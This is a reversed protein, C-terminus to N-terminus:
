QARLAGGAAALPAGTSRLTVVNGVATAAHQPLFRNYYGVLWQAARASDTGAPFVTTGALDSHQGPVNRTYPEVQLTSAAGLVPIPLHLAVGAAGGTSTRAAVTNRLSAALKFQVGATAAATGTFICGSTTATIGAFTLRQSSLARGTGVMVGVDGSRTAAVLGVRAVLKTPSASVVTAMAGQDAVFVCNNAPNPDFGSGRITILDGEKGDLPTVGDIRLQGPFGLALGNSARIIGTLPEYPIAQALFRGMLTGPLGLSVGAAGAGDAVLDVRATPSTLLQCGGPLSLAVRTTGILLAVPMGPIANRISFDLRHKAGVVADTASLTAPCPVGYSTIAAPLTTTTQGSLSAALAAVSAFLHTRTRNM